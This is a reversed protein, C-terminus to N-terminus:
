IHDCVKIEKNFLEGDV